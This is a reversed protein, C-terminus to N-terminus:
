CGKRSIASFERDCILNDNEESHCRYIDRLDCLICITALVTLTGAACRLIHTDDLTLWTLAKTRSWLLMQLVLVTMRLPRVQADTDSSTTLTQGATDKDLVNYWIRVQIHSVARVGYSQCNVSLFRTVIRVERNKRKQLLGETKPSFTRFYSMSAIGESPQVVDCVM